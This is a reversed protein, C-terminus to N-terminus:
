ISRDRCRANVQNVHYHEFSGTATLGVRMERREQQWHSDCPLGEHEARRRIWSCNSSRSPSSSQM